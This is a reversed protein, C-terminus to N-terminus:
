AREGSRAPGQVWEGGSGAGAQGQGRRVESKVGCAKAALGDLQDLSGM